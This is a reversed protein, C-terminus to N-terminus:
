CRSDKLTKNTKPKPPLPLKCIVSESYIVTKDRPRTVSYKRGRKLKLRLWCIIAIILLWAIDFNHTYKLFSNSKQFTWSIMFVEPRKCLLNQFHATFQNNLKVNIKLSNVNDILRSNILFTLIPILCAVTNVFIVLFCWSVKCFLVPHQISGHSTVLLAM